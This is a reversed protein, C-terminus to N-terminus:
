LQLGSGLLAQHCCPRRHLRELIAHATAPRGFRHAYLRGLHSNAAREHRVHSDLRSQGRRLLGRSLRCMSPPDKPLFLAFILFLVGVFLVFRVQKNLKYDAMLHIYEIKNQNTVTLNEGDPKLESVIHTGLESSVVTFDLGLEEVKSSNKLSILNKYLTPDLSSLHNIEVDQNISTSLLKALFFPALPLDTLMNEYVAKGLLRGIFFYHKQFDSILLHINPNPYLLQNKDPTVKFFGRNPDFATKIVETLFERFVGGGDIGSEELGLASVFQIRLMKRLTPQNEVSLKDLSDEYIFDRRIKIAQTHLDFIEQEHERKAFSILSQMLKVRQHFPVVFPLEQIVTVNVIDKVAVLPGYLSIEDRCLPRIGRFELYLHGRQKIAESFNAPLISDFSKTSIWHNDPVFQYRIDRAYIHHLLKLSTKLLKNWCHINYNHSFMSSKSDTSSSGAATASSSSLSSLGLSGTSAATRLNNSDDQYALEILAICVDRMVSSMHVLENLTFPLTCSSSSSQHVLGEKTITIPQKEQFFEVDDLTLLFYHFISSFLTLSPIFHHWDIISCSSQVANSTLLHLYTSSTFTAFSLSLSSEALFPKAREEQIFQWLEVLFPKNFALSSLIRTPLVLPFM